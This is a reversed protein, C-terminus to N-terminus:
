RAAGTTEDYLTGKSTIIVWRGDRKEISALRSDDPLVSGVRVIYLGGKDQILARGNAVHMLKFSNGGPFPQDRGEEDQKDGPRGPAATTATTLTDIPDLPTDPPTTTSDNDVMALPSVSFVPRPPGEPLDRTWGIPSVRIGFKDQNFFVYWPFAASAVALLIGAGALLRDGRGSSGPASGGGARPHSPVDDDDLDHM